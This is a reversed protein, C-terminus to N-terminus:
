SGGTQISVVTIFVVMAAAGLAIRAGTDRVPFGRWRFAVVFLTYAAMAGYLLRPSGEPGRLVLTYLAVVLLLLWDVRTLSQVISAHEDQQVIERRTDPPAEATEPKETAETM